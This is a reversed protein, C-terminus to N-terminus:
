VLRQDHRRHDVANLNINVDGKAGLTYDKHMLDLYKKFAEKATAYLMRGKIPSGDPAWNVFVMKSVHMMDEKTFEFDFVCYRYENEPLSGLFSDWTEDRGGVREVVQNLCWRVIKEDKIVYVIYRAEKKFKLAEFEEKCKDDTQLNM